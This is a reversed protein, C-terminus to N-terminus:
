DPEKDPRPIQGIITAADVEDSDLPLRKLAESTLKLQKIYRKCNSCKRTHLLVSLRTRFSLRGDIIDSALESMERCTLM